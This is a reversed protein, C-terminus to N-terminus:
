FPCGVRAATRIQVLARWRRPVKAWEGLLLETLFNVWFVRPVRAQLKMPTLDKGVRKRVMRFVRRIFFGAKREDMGQIRAM